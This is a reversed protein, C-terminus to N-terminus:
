FESNEYKRELYRIVAEADRLQSRLANIEQNLDSLENIWPSLNETKKVPQRKAPVKNKSGKPRGMDTEKFHFTKMTM